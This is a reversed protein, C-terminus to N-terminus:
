TTASFALTIINGESRYSYLSLIYRTGDPSSFEGKGFNEDSKRFDSIEDIRPLSLIRIDKRFDLGETLSAKYIAEKITWALINQEVDDAPIIQLEGSSLFRERIKLVQARNAAEADIGLATAPNFVRLDVGPAPRLTAVAFFHSTHTISIREDSYALFPAGNAFHGIERFGEKGNECYVQRAMELWVKGQRDEGGCVEEVKIGAPTPHRWYIFDTEM